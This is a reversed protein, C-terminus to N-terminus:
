LILAMPFLKTFFFFLIIVYEHGCTHANAHKFLPMWVEIERWAVSMRIFWRDMSRLGMVEAAHNFCLITPVSLSPPFFLFVM